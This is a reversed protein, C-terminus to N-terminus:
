GKNKKLSIVTPNHKVRYGEDVVAANVFITEPTEVYGAACHIHGFVHLLPKIEKVRTLLDDCGVNGDYKGESKGWRPVWDQYGYPPGHTVLIDTDDPIKAWKEALEAGRPLNFAWNYFEPQWPSGYIKLGDIVIEEDQLYVANTILKRCDDIKEFLFDHNGAILIKYKHPLEGFWDNLDTLERYNNGSTMSDGAHILIDGDPVNLKRHQGHTDAIMVVKM